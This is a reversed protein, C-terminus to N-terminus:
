LRGSLSCVLAWELDRCAPPRAIAALAPFSTLAPKGILYLVGPEFVPTNGWAAENSCDKLARSMYISNSPRGMRAALLQLQLERLSMQSDAWAGKGDLTGCWFSPFEWVRDHMRMWRSMGTQDFMAPASRESWIRLFRLHSPAESGLQVLLALAVVPILLRPSWRRSLGAMPAAILLYSTPLIFRGSARYVSFLDTLSQPLWYQLVLVAGFFVRNSAAFAALVVLVAVVWRHRRVADRVDAPASLSWLALLGLAGIGIYADGEYQGSTADRVIPIPHGAIAPPVLLTPVNWTFHGYGGAQTAPQLLVDGYGALLM